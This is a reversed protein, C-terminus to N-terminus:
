EQVLRNRFASLQQRVSGDYVTSGVRAVVGGILSPDVSIEMRVQKGTVRELRAALESQLSAELPHAATVLARVIGLREDLLKKYAEIIGELLVLRNREILLQLFRIVRRDLGLAAALENLLKERRDSSITPNEFLRRVDSQERLLGYFSELQQLGSEASDPYLADLLARAYRNGAATM